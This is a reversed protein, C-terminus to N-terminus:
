DARRDTLRRGVANEQRAVYLSDTLRLETSMRDVTPRSMLHEYSMKAETSMCTKYQSILQKNNPRKGGFFSSVNLSNLSTLM